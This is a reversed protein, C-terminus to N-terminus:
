NRSGPARGGPQHYRNCEEDIRAIFKEDEWDSEDGADPALAKAVKLVTKKQDDSLINVYDQLERDIARM